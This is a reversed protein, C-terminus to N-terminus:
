FECSACNAATYGKQKGKGKVAVEVEGALGNKVAMRLLSSAKQTSTVGEIGLEYIATATMPEAGLNAVVTEVLKLNEEQKPSLTIRRKELAADMQALEKEAFAVTEDTMNKNIISDLFERKTMTTVKRADTAV